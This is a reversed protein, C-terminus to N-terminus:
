NLTPAPAIMTGTLTGKVWVIGNGGGGGGGAGGSVTGAGGTTGATPTMGTVGRGGTGGGNAGNTAAAPQTNLAMTAGDPGAGGATTSSGASGNGGNAAIIGNVTITPSELGILGGSGGGAGGTHLAGSAGGAGSAYINGDVTISTAAFLYVAGGSSGGPGGQTTASIDGGDQGKCGGRVFTLGLIAGSVGNNNVTALNVFGDGGNTGRVGFTGGAGGGGATATTPPTAGAGCGMFNAGAGAKAATRKSSVDLTGGINITDTALLMLPRAGTATVTNSINIQNAAIVCLEPGAPQAILDTCTGLTDTDLAADLVKVGAAPTTICVPALGSGWCLQADPGPADPPADPTLAFDEIGLIKSCAPQSAALLAGLCVHRWM